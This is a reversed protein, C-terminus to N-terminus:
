REGLANIALDFLDPHERAFEVPDKYIMEAAMTLLEENEMTGHRVKGMYPDLTDSRRNGALWLQRPRSPVPSLPSVEPKPAIPLDSANARRARWVRM